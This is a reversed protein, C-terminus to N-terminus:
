ASRRRALQIANKESVCARCFYDLGDALHSRNANFETKPKVAKCRSCVKETNPDGGAQKVRIRFHLLHHYALDQCIVLPAAPDKSGDAHHVVAGHPLPKGLAREARLRHVTKLKEAHKGTAAYGSSRPRAAKRGADANAKVETRQLREAMAAKQEASREYVGKPM